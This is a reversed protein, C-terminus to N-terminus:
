RICWFFISDNVQTTWAGFRYIGIIDSKPEVFGWGGIYYNLWCNKLSMGAPWAVNFASGAALGLNPIHWGTMTLALKNLTVAGDQLMNSTVGADRIGVKFPSEVTGEGSKMLGGGPITDTLENGIADDVRNWISGSWFYIGATLAGGTNYVLMGNVTPTGTLPTSVNTLSVRPLALGKTGSNTDDANLDLAAAPNPPTNGGIRVQAKVSAAGLGMLLLLFM